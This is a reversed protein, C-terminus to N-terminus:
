EYSPLESENIRFVEYEYTNWCGEIDASTFYDLQEAPFKLRGAKVVQMCYIIEYNTGDSLHFRFSTINEGTVPETKKSSVQLESFMGYLWAIDDAKTIVKKEPSAPVVYHYMEVYSVDAITFPLDVTEKKECGVLILCLILAFILMTIKKM